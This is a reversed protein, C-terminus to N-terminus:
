LTIYKLFGLQWMPPSGHPTSSDWLWLLPILVWLFCGFALHVHVLLVLHLPQSPVNTKLKKWCIMQCHFPFQVHGCQWLVLCKMWPNEISFLPWYCKAVYLVLNELFCTTLSKIQQLPTLQWFLRHNLFRLSKEKEKLKVVRQLLFLGRKKYLNPHEHCGHKKLVSTNHNKNYNM